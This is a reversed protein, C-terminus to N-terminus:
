TSSAFSTYIEKLEDSGLRSGSRTVLRSAALCAFAGAQPPSHKQILAYLYAGAFLDGAGNTNVAEVSPAPISWEQDRDRILVGESGRTVALGTAVQSLENLAPALDQQQSFLLAEDTNCFLLDLKEDGIIEQLQPRFYKAMSPDNLSLVTKVGHTRASKIAKIAAQKGKDSSSLYGEIYLYDSSAIDEPLIDDPSLESAIGLYTQMTRDADPTIMVLCTATPLPSVAPLAPSAVGYHELNQLYSKGRSDPAMKCNFFTKSGLHAVAILTNAASGGCHQYHNDSYRLLQEQRERDVLTMLGKEINQESLFSFPVSWELDMVANGMGYICYKKSVMKSGQGLM